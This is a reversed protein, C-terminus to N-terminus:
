PNLPASSNKLLQSKNVSIQSKNLEEQRDEVRSILISPEKLKM